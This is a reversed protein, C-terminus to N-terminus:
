TLYAKKQRKSKRFKNAQSESNSHDCNSDEILVEENGERGTIDCPM